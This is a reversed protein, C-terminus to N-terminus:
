ICLLRLCGGYREGLEARGWTVEPHLRCNLAAGITVHKKSTIERALHQNPSLIQAFIYHVRKRSIRALTVFNRACVFFFLLFLLFVSTKKGIEVCFLSFFHLIIGNQEIKLEMFLCDNLKISFM